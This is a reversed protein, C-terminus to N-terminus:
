NLAASAGSSAPKSRSATVASPRGVELILNHHGVSEARFFVWAFVVALFTAAQGSVRWGLGNCPRGSWEALASVAHNIVLYIGHLTGWIVFRESRSPLAAVTRQWEFGGDRAGGRHRQVLYRRHM